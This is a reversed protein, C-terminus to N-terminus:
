DRTEPRQDKTQDAQDQVIKSFDCLIHYTLNIERLLQLRNARLAADDTMVMINSSKDFYAEITGALPQLVRYVKAYHGRLDLLDPSGIEAVIEAHQRHLEHELSEVYKGTEPPGDPMEVGKDRAHNMINVLRTAAVTIQTFEPDSTRLVELADARAIAEPVNDFGASVVAQAVDYRVGREMLTAEAREAFYACLEGRAAQRDVGLLGQGELQDLAQHILSRLDIGWETLIAFMSTVARRLGFPDSSGTPKIGVGFHAALADIRDALAVIRALLEKPCLDYHDAIADAVLPDEGDRLAYERGIKGQLSPLEIVMRTTLDAKAL